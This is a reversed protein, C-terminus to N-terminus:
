WLMFDYCMNDSGMPTSKAISIENQSEWWQFLKKREQPVILKTRFTGDLLLNGTLNAFSYRVRCNDVLRFKEHIVLASPHLGM